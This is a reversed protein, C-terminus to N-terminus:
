TMNHGRITRAARLFCIRVKPLGRKNKNTEIQSVIFQEGGIQKLVGLKKAGAKTPTVELRAGEGQKGDKLRLTYNQRDDPNKSTKGHRDWGVRTKTKNVGSLEALYPM